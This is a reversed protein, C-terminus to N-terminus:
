SHLSLIEARGPIAGLSQWIRMICIGEPRNVELNSLKVAGSIQFDGKCAEVSVCFAVKKM